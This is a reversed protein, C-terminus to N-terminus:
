LNDILVKNYKTYNLELSCERCAMEHDAYNILRLTEARGVEIDRQCFRCSVIDDLTDDQPKITAAGNLIDQYKLYKYYKKKDDRDKLWVLFSSLM